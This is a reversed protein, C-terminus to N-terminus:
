SVIGRARSRFISLYQDYFFCVINGANNKGKLNPALNVRLELLNPDWPVSTRQEWGVSFKLLNWCKNGDCTPCQSRWCSQERQKENYDSTSLVTTTPPTRKRSLKNLVEKKSGRALDPVLTPGPATAYEWDRAGQTLRFVKRVRKDGRTYM